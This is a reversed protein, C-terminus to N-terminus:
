MRRLGDLLSQHEGAVLRQLAALLFQVLVAEEEVPKAPTLFSFGPTRVEVVWLLHRDAAEEQLPDARSLPVERFSRRRAQEGMCNRLVLHGGTCIKELARAGVVGTRVTMDFHIVLGLDARSEQFTKTRLSFRAPEPVHQFSPFLLLLLLLLLFHADLLYRSFALLLFLFLNVSIGAQVLLDLVQPTLRQEGMPGDVWKGVGM